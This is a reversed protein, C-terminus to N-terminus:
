NAANQGRQKEFFKKEAECMGYDQDGPENESYDPLNNLFTSFNKMYTKNEKCEKVYRNIIEILDDQGAKVLLKKIKDKCKKSKGTPRRTIFCKNPYSNYIKDIEETNNNHTNNINTNNDKANELYPYKTNKIPTKDNELYTNLINLVRRIIQKGKREYEAKLYGKKILSNIVQSVRSNSIKFFKAFYSNSAFCGDKNDLSDIEVIFIKELLTMKDDLWLEKPIWIGKFDRNM